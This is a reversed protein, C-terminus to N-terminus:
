GEAGIIAAAQRENALIEVLVAFTRATDATLTGARACIPAIARWEARAAASLHRPAPPTKM